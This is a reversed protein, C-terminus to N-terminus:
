QRLKKLDSITPAAVKRVLVAATLLVDPRTRLGLYLAKAAISHFYISDNECLAKRDGDDLLLTPTAPTSAFTMLVKESLTLLSPCQYILLVM